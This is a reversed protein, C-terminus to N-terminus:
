ASSNQGDQNDRCLMERIKEAKDKKGSRKLTQLLDESANRGHEEVYKRLLQHTQEQSDRPYDHECADIRALKMGSRQAVDKMDKWGLEEAIDPLFPQLDRILPREEAPDPAPAPDRKMEKRKKWFLFGGIVAGAVALVAIVSVTIIVVRSKEHCETDSTDTCEKKVGYECTKCPHCVKCMGVGRDCFHGSKCRCKTDRAPSCPSDEELNANDQSCSTCPQCTEQFNPADNYTGPECLECQGDQPNTTCHKKVRQGAACRCCTKEDNLYTGDACAQRRRRFIEKLSRPSASMEPQPSASSFALSVHLFLLITFLAPARMLM